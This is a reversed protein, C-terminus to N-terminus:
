TMKKCQEALEDRRGTQAYVHALHARLILSDPMLDIAEKLHKEASEIRHENRDIISYALKTLVKQVTAPDAEFSNILDEVPMKNNPTERADRLTLRAKDYDGDALALFIRCLSVAAQSALKEIELEQTELLAQDYDKKLMLALALNLRAGPIQIQKEKAIALLERWKQIASDFNGKLLHLRAIRYAAIHKPDRKLAERYYDIARDTDSLQEHIGALFAPAAAQAPQEKMYNKLLEVAEERQDNALYTRALDMYAASFAPDAALASEFSAAAREYQGLSRHITGKLHYAEPSDEGALEIAEQVITLAQEPRGTYLEVRALQLRAMASTPEIEIARKIYDAALPGRGTLIYVHALTMMAEANSPRLKLVQKCHSEAEDYRAKRILVDAMALRIQSALFLKRNEDVYSLAKLFETLAPEDRGGRFRYAQGLWFLMEPDKYTSFGALKNVATRYLETRKERDKEGLARGLAARGILYNAIVWRRDTKQIEAAQEEAAKWNGSELHLKGLEARITNTQSASASYELAKTLTDMARAAQGSEIQISAIAWNLSSRDQDANAKINKLQQEDNKAKATQAKVRAEAKELATTLVDVAQSRTDDSGSSYLLTAKLLSARVLTPDLALAQDVEALAQEPKDGRARFIQSLKLHAEALDRKKDLALTCQTQAKFYHNLVERPDGGRSVEKRALRALLMEADAIRLHAEVMNEDLDLVKEFQKIAKTPAKNGLHAEALAFIIKTDGPKEKAAKEFYGVAKEYERNDLAIRGLVYPDGKSKGKGCGIMPMTMTALVLVALLFCTRRKMGMIERDRLFRRLFLRDTANFSCRIRYLIRIPKPMVVIKRCM